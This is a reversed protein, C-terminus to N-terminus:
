KDVIEIIVMSKLSLYFIMYFVFLSRNMLFINKSNILFLLFHNYIQAICNLIFLCISVSSLIYWACYTNFSTIRLVSRM